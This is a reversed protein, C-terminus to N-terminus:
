GRGYPAIQIEGCVRTRVASAKEPSRRSNARISALAWGRLLTAVLLTASGTYAYPLM